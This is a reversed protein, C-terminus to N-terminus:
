AKKELKITKWKINIDIIWKSDIKTFLTLDIDLNKKAFPHGIIGAGNKSFVIREVIM